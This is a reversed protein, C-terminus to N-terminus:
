PGSPSPCPKPGMIEVLFIKIAIICRLAGGWWETNKLRDIIRAQHFGIDRVFDANANARVFNESFWIRRLFWNSKFFFNRYREFTRRGDNLCNLDNRFSTFTLPNKIKCNICAFEVILYITVFYFM